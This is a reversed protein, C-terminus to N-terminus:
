RLKDQNENILWKRFDNNRFMFVQFLSILCCFILVYTLIEKLSNIMKIWKKNFAPKTIIIEVNYKKTKQIEKSNQYLKKWKEKRCCYVILNIM